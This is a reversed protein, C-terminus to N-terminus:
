GSVLPNAQYISAQFKNFFGASLREYVQGNCADGLDRREIENDSIGLTKVECYRKRDPEGFCIDPRTKGDEPIISVSAYNRNILYRYAFAENLQNFFGQKLQGRRHDLFHNLAKQKLVEWSIPDLSRLADNYTRYYRKKDPSIRCSEEFDTFFHDDPHSSRVASILERIRRM